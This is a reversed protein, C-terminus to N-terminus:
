EGNGGASSMEQEQLHAAIVIADFEDMSSEFANVVKPDFHRGAGKRIIRCADEHSMAAKYYRTSSLADYVDALAVIRASLPIQEGALGYPYGSGDWWEHHGVAIEAAMELLPDDGWKLKTEILADAGIYTHTKMRDYEDDTLKAPKKLIADAIGIKGVDHLAAAVSITHIFEEDIEPYVDRLGEALLESFACVRELHLGTENDRAETLRLMGLLLADRGRLLRREAEIRRTIDAGVGVIIANGTVPDIVRERQLQFVRETGDSFKVVYEPDYSKMGTEIIQRNEALLRRQQEGGLFIQAQCTTIDEPGVAGQRTEGPTLGFATIFTENAFLIQGASDMSFIFGPAMRLMGGLREHRSRDQALQETLRSTEEELSAIREQLHRIDPNDEERAMFTRIKFHCSRVSGVPENYISEAPCDM